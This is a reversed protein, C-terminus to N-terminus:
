HRESRNRMELYASSFCKAMKDPSNKSVFVCGEKIHDAYESNGESLERLQEIDNFILSKFDVVNLGNENCITILEEKTIYEGAKTAAFMNYSIKKGYTLKKQIGPGAIEGFFLYGNPLHDQIARATTVYINNDNNVSDVDLVVDHSGTYLTHVETQPHPLKGVRWNTGHIKESYLLEEGEEFLDPENLINPMKYFRHMYPSIKSAALADGSMGVAPLDEWKLIYPLYPEVIERPVIIGESRNGRLSTVRVRGKSLYNTVNLTEGLEFPLLSEAPIFLVKNGVNHLGKAAVAQWGLELFKICELNDSNVAPTISIITVERVYPSTTCHDFQERQYTIQMKTEERM